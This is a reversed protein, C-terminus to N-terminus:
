SPAATRGAEASLNRAEEGILANYTAQHVAKNINALAMLRTAAQHIRPVFPGAARVFQADGPPQGTTMIQGWCTLIRQALLQHVADSPAACQTLARALASRSESAISSREVARMIHAVTQAVDLETDTNTDSTFLEKVSTLVSSIEAPNLNRAASIGHTATVLMTASTVVRQFERQLLSLRHVDFLLTEPCRDARLPAPDAVLALMAASHISAYASAQGSLLGALGVAKAAVEHWLCERIWARTRELTLSGDNLKDQFKGREYDVGHDKIVPAILRLRANAADIRMANVRDLLFELATCFARPQDEGTAEQMAQGVQRWRARTEDDRRPAQVRQIVALISGILRMCCDWGYLGLEAQEKIFGLDVAEGIRGSWESSGALDVIGDRIEALVRLVRVYCPPALKLDDVLSDWFAQHFSQRIRHFVPNDSCYGGGEDLQFGPDLLLEHALQENTMRGPLAAYAGGGAGGGSTGGACSDAGSLNVQGARFQEDFERLADDGAIQQLKSRLREIQTRFEVKLKSDEPEDPPLHEEAQYLAVLAHKIRCTLKAEDPVKWAKFRQLYQHLIAPFYQTLDNPVEQFCHMSASRICQLIRQFATLLSIASEYLAQELTGM